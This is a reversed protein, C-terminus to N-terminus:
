YIYLRMSSIRTLLLGQTVTNSFHNQAQSDRKQRRFPLNPPCRRGALGKLNRMWPWDWPVDSLTDKYWKTARWHSTKQYFIDKKLISIIVIIREGVREWLNYRAYFQSLAQCLIPNTDLKHLNKNFLLRNGISRFCRQLNQKVMRMRCSYSKWVTRYFLSRFPLRM